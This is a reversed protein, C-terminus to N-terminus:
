QMPEKMATNPIPDKNMNEVRVMVIVSIKIKSAIKLKEIMQMTMQSHSTKLFCIDGMFRTKFSPSMEM